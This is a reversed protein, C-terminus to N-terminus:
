RWPRWSTLGKISCNPSYRDVNREELRAGDIGSRFKGEVLGFLM